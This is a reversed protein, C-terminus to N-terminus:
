GEEVRVVVENTEAGRVAGEDIAAEGVVGGIARLEEVRVRAAGIKRRNREITGSQGANPNTSTGADGVNRRM